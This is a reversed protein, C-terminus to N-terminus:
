GELVHWKATHGLVPKDPTFAPAQDGDGFTKTNDGVQEAGIPKEVDVTKGPYKIDKTPDTEKDRWTGKDEISQTESPHAKSDGKVKEFSVDHGKLSEGGWGAPTDGIVGDPDTTRRDYGDTPVEAATTGQTQLRNRLGGMGAAGPQEQGPTYTKGCNPCPAGVHMLAGCSPCPAQGNGHQPTGEQVTQYPAGFDFAVKAAAEYLKDPEPASHEVAIENAMLRLEDDIASLRAQFEDASQASKLYRAFRKETRHKVAILARNTSATRVHAEEDHLVLSLWDDM